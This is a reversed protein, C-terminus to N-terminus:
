VCVCVRDFVRDCLRDCVCDCDCVCVCATLCVTVCVTVCVCVHEQMNGGWGRLSPDGGVTCGGKGKDRLLKRM